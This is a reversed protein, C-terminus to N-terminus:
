QGSWRFSRPNTGFYQRFCRSFHSQDTFGSDLAIAALSRDTEVLLKEARELRKQMVYCHPPTGVSQKFARAFHCKSLGATAALAELAISEALHADIYDRVRQLTRPALGGRAKPPAAPQHLQGIADLRPRFHMTEPEQGRRHSAGRRPPTLLASWADNAGLSLLTASVDGWRAGRFPEANKEFLSWLTPRSALNTKHELLMARAHRDAGVVRQDRDVALLVGRNANGGRTLAVIWHRGQTKRFSREEIARATLEVFARILPLSGEPLFGDAPLIDLLGILREEPDFVPSALSTLDATQAGAPLMRIDIGHLHQAIGSVEGAHDDSNLYVVVECGAQSVVNYLRNLSEAEEILLQCAAAAHGEPEISTERPLLDFLPPAELTRRRGMAAAARRDRDTRIRHSSVLSRAGRVVAPSTAVDHEPVLDYLM